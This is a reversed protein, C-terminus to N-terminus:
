RAPDGDCVKACGPACFLYNRGLYRRVTAASPPSVATQMVEMEEDAPGVTVIRHGEILVTQDPLLSGDSVDVVTVNRIAVDASQASASAVWVLCLIPSLGKRM